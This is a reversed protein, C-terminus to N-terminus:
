EKQLEELNKMIVDQVKTHLEREEERSINDTYIPKDFIITVEASQIKKNLEYAKYTGNITVPVIPAKAKTALKLSGKKLPKM